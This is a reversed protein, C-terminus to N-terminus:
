LNAPAALRFVEAADTALDRADAPADEPGVQLRDLDGVLFTRHPLRAHADLADAATAHLTGDLAFGELHRARSTMAMVRSWARQIAWRARRSNVSASSAVITGWSLAM